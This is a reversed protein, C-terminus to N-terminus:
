IIADEPHAIQEVDLRSIMSIGPDSVILVIHLFTLPEQLILLAM